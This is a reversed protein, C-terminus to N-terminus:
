NYNVSIQRRAGKPTKALKQRVDDVQNVDSKYVKFQREYGNKDCRTSYHSFSFTVGDLDIYSDNIEDYDWNDRHKPNTRYGKTKEKRYMGYPM